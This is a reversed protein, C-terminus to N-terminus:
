SPKMTGSAPSLARYMPPMSSPIPQPSQFCPSPRFLPAASEPIISIGHKGTGAAWTSNGHAGPGKRRVRATWFRRPSHFRGQHAGCHKVRRLFLALCGSVSADPTEQSTLGSIHLAGGEKRHPGKTTSYAMRSNSSSAKTSPSERLVREM